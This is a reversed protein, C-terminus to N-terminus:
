PRKLEFTFENPFSVPIGSPLSVKLPGSTWSIPGISRRFQPNDGFGPNEKVADIPQPPMQNGPPPPPCWGAVTGSISGSWAGNAFGVRGNGRLRGQPCDSPPVMRVWGTDIVGTEGSVSLGGGAPREVSVMVDFPEFRVKAQAALRLEDLTWRGALELDRGGLRHRLGAASELSFRGDSRVTGALDIPESIGPVPFAAAISLTPLQGPRALFDFYGSPLRFGAFDLATGQAMLALGGDASALGSLDLQSIAGAGFSNGIALRGDVRMGSKGGALYHELVEVPRLPRDYVAIEDLWGSWARGTREPNAAVWVDLGNSAVSGGAVQWADLAGDLYIRRSRGDFVGVVHHWRDDEVGRSTILDGSPDVGATRFAIRDTTGHRQLGWASDGKSVITQNEATFRSVRFWAELSVTPFNMGTNAGGFQIWSAVRSLPPNFWVSRNGSDALPQTEQEPAYQGVYTGSAGGAVADAARIRGLVVRDDLRWHARPRSAAVAAGYDSGGRMLVHTIGGSPFGRFVQNAAIRNTLAWRGDPWARGDFSQSVGAVVVSGGIDLGSKGLRLRARELGFGGLLWPATLDAGLEMGTPTSATGTLRLPNVEPLSLDGEVRWELPRSSNGTLRTNLNSLGFGLISGSALTGELALVGSSALTGGVTWSPLDGGGLRGTFELRVAGDTGRVLAARQLGAVEFGQVGLTLKEPLDARFSGDGRMQLDVLPIGAGAATAAASRGSKLSVGAVTLVAGGDLLRLGEPTVALRLPGGDAAAVRFIGAELPPVPVVGTLAVGGGPLPVAGLEVGKVDALGAVRITGRLAIGGFREAVAMPTDGTRAPNYWPSFAALDLSGGGAAPPGFVGAYAAPFRFGNLRAIVRAKPLAANLRGLADTVVAAREFAQAKAMRALLDAFEDEIPRAPRQRIEAEIRADDVFQGLWSDKLLGADVRFVGQNQGAPLSGVISAGAIPVGLLMGELRGGLFALDSRYLHPPVSFTDMSVQRISALMASPDATPPVAIRTGDPHFLVPPNPAPLYFALQGNTRTALVYDRVISQVANFRQLLDANADAATALLAPPIGEVLARPPALQAAGVVGGHPFYDRSLTNTRLLLRVERNQPADPYAQFFDAETGKWQVVDGLRGAATAALLLDRRSPLGPVGREEPAVWRLRDGPARREPHDTLNPLVVRAAADAVQMGMPHFRYRFGVGSNLLLDDAQRRALEIARSPSAFGGDLGAFLMAYPDGYQWVVSMTATDGPTFVPFLPSLLLSISADCSAAFRDRTFEGRLGALRGDPLLPFGFLRPAVEGCLVIRPQVAGTRSRLIRLLNPAFDSPLRRVLDETLGTVQALLRMRDQGSLPIGAGVDGVPRRLAAILQEKSVNRFSRGTARSLVDQLLPEGLLTAIDPLLGLLETVCGPCEYALQALGIDLPGFAVALEGCLSPNPLGAADTGAVFVEATGLPVGAVYATGVVGASGATSVVAKGQVYAFTSIGAYSFNGAASLTMDFCPAGTYALDVMADYLRDPLTGNGSTGKVQDFVAQLESTIWRRLEALSEERMRNLNTVAVPPLPASAMPVRAAVADAIKGAAQRALAQVDNGAARFVARTLGTANTLAAEDFSSFKGIVRGPFRNTDPHPQCFLNVTPPPCDGPCDIDQGAGTAASVQANRAKAMGQPTPMPPLAPTPVSATFAVARERLRQAAATFEAWPIGPLEPGGLEPGNYGVIEGVANTRFYTAFLCPDSGSNSFSLGAEAGTWLFGTPGLPVGAAGANVQACVGLVRTLTTAMLVSVQYGQMSGGLRGAIWLKGPGDRLGGICMKGGLDNIPPLDSPQVGVCVTQVGELRPIGDAGFSVILDDIDGELYPNEPPIAVRASATIGLNSPEFLRELPLAPDRLRFVLRKVTVPLSGVVLRTEVTSPAIFRPPRDPDFFEFKAGALGLRAEELDLTGDLSIRFRRDDSLAFLNELGDLRLRVGRLMPGSPGLRFSGAIELGDLALIPQTGPTWTISGCASGSVREEPRAPDTLMEPAISARLGGTITIKPAGSGAGPARLELTTGPCGNTAAGLASIEFTPGASLLRQDDRLALKGEPWGDLRFVANTLDLHNTQGPLPLRLSGTVNTLYPPGDGPFRLMASCIAAELGEFGPPAVGFRALRLDGGSLRLSRPAGGIGPSFRARLPRDADIEVTTGATMGSPLPCLGSDPGAPYFFPPLTLRGSQLVAETTGDGEVRVVAQVESGVLQFLNATVGGPTTPLPTASDRRLLGLSGGLRLEGARAAPRLSVGLRGDILVLDDSLRWAALDNGEADFRLEPIQPLWAMRLGLEPGGNIRGRGQGEFSFPLGPGGDVRASLSSVTLAGAPRWNGLSAEVQFALRNDFRARDIAFWADGLDPLELRGGFEAELTKRSTDLRLNGYIRSVELRGPLALDPLSPQSAVVSGLDAVLDRTSELAIDAAANAAQRLAPSASADAAAATLERAVDLPISWEGGEAASNTLARVWGGISERFHAVAQSESNATATASLRRPTPGTLIQDSLQIVRIMCIMKFLKNQVKAQDIDKRKGTPSFNLAFNTYDRAAMAKMSGVVKLLENTSLSPPPRKAIAELAALMLRGYRNGDPETSEIYADYVIGELTMEPEKKSIIYDVAQSFLTLVDKEDQEITFNGITGDLRVLSQGYPGGFGAGRLEVLVTMWQPCIVHVATAWRLVEAPLQDQEAASWRAQIRNRREIAIAKLASRVNELDGRGSGIIWENAELLNTTAIALQKDSLKEMATPDVVVGGAGIGVECERAKLLRDILTDVLSTLRPDPLDRCMLTANVSQAATALRAISDGDCGASTLASEALALLSGSAMTLLETEEPSALLEPPLVGLRSDPRSALRLKTFLQCSAFLTATGEVLHDELTKRAAKREASGNTTQTWRARDSILGARTYEVYRRYAAIANTVTGQLRAVDAPEMRVRDDLLLQVADNITDQARAAASTAYLPTTAAPKGAGGAAQPSGLRRKALRAASGSSDNDPESPGLSELLGGLSGLMRIVRNRDVETLARLRAGDRPLLDRTALNAVALNLGKAEMGVEYFPPDLRLNAAFEAGTDLRFKAAGSLSPTNGRSWRLRVPNRRSVAIRVKPADAPFATTGALALALTGDSDLVGDVVELGTGLGPLTIAGGLSGRLTRSSTDYAIAGRLRELVIDDGIRLEPSRPSIGRAVRAGTSEWAALANRRLGQLLRAAAQTQLTQSREDGRARYREATDLLLEILGRQIAEIGASESVAISELLAPLTQDRWATAAPIGFRLALEEAILGGELLAALDGAALSERSETQRRVQDLAATLLSAAQSSPAPAPLAPNPDLVASVGRLIERLDGPKWALEPRRITSAVLSLYATGDATERLAALQPVVPLFGSGALAALESLERAALRLIAPRAAETEPSTAALTARQLASLRLALQGMMESRRNGTGAVGVARAAQELRRLERLRLRLTNRGLAMVPGSPPGHVGVGIGLADAERESWEGLVKKAANVLEEPAPRTPELSKRLGEAESLSGMLSVLDEQNRVSGRHATRARAEAELRDIGATFAPMLSGMEVGSAGAARRLRWLNAHTRFIEAVGLLGPSSSATSEMADQFRGSTGTEAGSGAPGAAALASVTRAVSEAPGAPRDGEPPSPERPPGGIDTTSVMSRAVAALEGFGEALLRLRPEIPEGAAPAIPAVPTPPANRVSWDVLDAQLNRPALSFGHVPDDWNLDATFAPGNGDFAMEVRGRLSLTGDARVTLWVPRSAPVRVFPGEETRDPLRWTGSFPLRVELQNGDIDLSWGEATTPPLPLRGPPLGFRCGVFGTPGISGEQWLM